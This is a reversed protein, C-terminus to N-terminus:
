PPYPDDDFFFRFLFIKLIINAVDIAATTQNTQRWHSVANPECALEFHRHKTSRTFTQGNSLLGSATNYQIIILNQICLM